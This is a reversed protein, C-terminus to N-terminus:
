RGARGGCADHGMGAIIELITLTNQPTHTESIMRM